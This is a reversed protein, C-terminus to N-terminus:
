ALDGRAAAVPLLALPLLGRREADRLDEVIRTDALAVAEQEIVLLELREDLVELAQAADPEPHREALRVELVELHKLVDAHRPDVLDVELALLDHRDLEQARQQRVRRREGRAVGALCRDATQAFADLVALALAVEDVVDAVVGLRVLFHARLRHRVRGAHWRHGARRHHHAARPLAGAYEVHFLEIGIWEEGVHGGTAQGPVDLLALAGSRCRPVPRMLAPAPSPASTARAISTLATSVGHKM